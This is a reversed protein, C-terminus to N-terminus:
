DSGWPRGFATRGTRVTPVQRCIGATAAFPRMAFLVTGLMGGSNIGTGAAGPVGSHQCQQLTHGLWWSRM